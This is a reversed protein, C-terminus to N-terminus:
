KPALPPEPVQTVFLRSDGAFSGLQNLDETFIGPSQTRSGVTLRGDSALCIDDGYWFSTQAVLDGTTGDLAMLQFDNGPSYGLMTAFITDSSADYALGRLDVFFIGNPQIARVFSGSNDIESIAYSSAILLNGWPLARVAFIAGHTLLTGSPPDGLDFRVLGDFTGVYFSGNQDFDIKGFSLNGGIWANFPYAQQVNGDSDLALVNIGGDFAAVAYLFGDPGFALGRVVDAVSAPVTFSGVVAGSGDYYIITNSVSNATYFDGPTFDALSAAPLLIMAAAAFATRIALTQM